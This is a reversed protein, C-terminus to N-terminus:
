WADRENGSATAAETGYFGKKRKRAAAVPLLRVRTTSATKPSQAVGLVEIPSKREASGGGRGHGGGTVDGGQEEGVHLKEVEGARELDEGDGAPPRVWGGEADVGHGLFRPRQEGLVAEADIGVVQQSVARGRVEEYNGTAQA